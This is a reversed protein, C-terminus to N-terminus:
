LELGCVGVSYSAVDLGIDHELIHVHLLMPALVTDVLVVFAM